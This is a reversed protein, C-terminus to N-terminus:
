HSACCGYITPINTVYEDIAHEIEIMRSPIIHAVDSPDAGEDQMKLIEFALDTYMREIKDMHRFHKAQCFIGSSESFITQILVAIITLLPWRLNGAPLSKLTDFSPAYMGLNMYYDFRIINKAALRIDLMIASKLAAHVDLETAMGPGAAMLGFCRKGFYEFYEIITRNQLFEATCSAPVLIIQESEDYFWYTATTYDLM